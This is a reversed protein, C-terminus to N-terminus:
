GAKARRVVGDSLVIEVPTSAFWNKAVNLRGFVLRGDASLDGDPSDGYPPMAIWAVQSTDSASMSSGVAKRSEALAEQCRPCDRHYLLVVWKGQCLRDGIDIFGVLPFRKGVWTEPKLVVIRGGALVEGLDTLTGAPQSWTAFAVPAGLLFWVAL